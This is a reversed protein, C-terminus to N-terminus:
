ETQHHAFRRLVLRIFLPCTMLILSSVFLVFQINNFVFPGFAVNAGELRDILYGGFRVGILAIVGGIAANLGLFMTRGQKTAFMFPINFMSIGAGGWAFGGTAFLLPAMFAVNHHDVFAWSIHTLALLMVSGEATLYWSKKDAMKGWIPTVLIRLITGLISITMVYTYSLDLHAVMYVAIFPGGMQLGLNWLSFLAIVMKFGPNSLPIKVADRFRYKSPVYDHTLEEMRHVSVFNIIGLILVIAGVFLFGQAELDIIEYYDLLKGASFSLVVSLAFGFRERKAFYQGRISNPTSVVLWEMLAPAMLGNLAFAVIYLLIFLQLSIGTPILLVPIIYILSLALRLFAIMKLMPKKRQQMREFYLSSIVQTFGMVAPIAGMTGNLSDSGGLLNIFGALFAGSVLTFQGMGTMMEILFLQRNRSMSHYIHEM